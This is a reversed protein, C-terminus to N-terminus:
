PEKRKIWHHTNDLVCAGREETGCGDIPEENANGKAAHEM